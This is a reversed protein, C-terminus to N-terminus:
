FQQILDKAYPTDLFEGSMIEPFFMSRFRVLKFRHVSVHFARLNWQFVVM